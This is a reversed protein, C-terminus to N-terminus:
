QKRPGVRSEKVLVQHHGEGTEEKVDRQAEQEPPANTGALVVMERAGQGQSHDRNADMQIYHDTMSSAAIPEMHVIEKSSSNRAIVQNINQDTQMKIVKANETIRITQEHHM